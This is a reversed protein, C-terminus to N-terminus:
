SRSLVLYDSNQFNSLLNAISPRVIEGDVIICVRDPGIVELFAFIAAFMCGAAM